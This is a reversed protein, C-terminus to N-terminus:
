NAPTGKQALRKVYLYIAGYALLVFCFIGLGVREYDIEAAPYFWSLASYLSVGYSLLVIVWGMARSASQGLQSSRDLLRCAIMSDLTDVLMMGALFTLGLLLPMYSGNSSAALAWVSTQTVTDAAMAFLAGSLMILLPNTTEGIFRGFFKTKLGQLQYEEDAHRLLHYTNLTGILFLSIISVWTGVTDFYEPYRFNQSIMGLITAVCVVVMGHGFSFLTGVWRAMRRNMRWNYRTLGDIYALHDADLGHRLGLVFVLVILSIAEPNL